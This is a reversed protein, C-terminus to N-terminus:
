AQPPHFCNELYNFSYFIEQSLYKEEQDSSTQFEFKWALDIAPHIFPIELQKMRQEPLQNQSREKQEEFDLKRFQKALYCKGDCHMVPRNKNECYKETIFDQNLKWNLVVVPRFGIQILILGLLLISTIYRM